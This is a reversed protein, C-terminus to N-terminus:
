GDVEIRYFHVIRGGPLPQGNFSKCYEGPFAKCTGMGCKLLLAALVVPDTPNAWDVVRATRTM